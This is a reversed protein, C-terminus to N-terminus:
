GLGPKEEILHAKNKKEQKEYKLKTLLSWLFYIIIYAIFLFFVGIGYVWILGDGLMTVLNTKGSDSAVDIMVGVTFVITLLSMAIFLIQLGAHSWNGRKEDYPTINLGLYAFVFSILALGLIIATDYAMLLTVATKYLYKVGTM